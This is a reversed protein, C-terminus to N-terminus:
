LPSTINKFNSWLDAASDLTFNAARHDGRGAGTMEKMVSCSSLSSIYSAEGFLDCVM